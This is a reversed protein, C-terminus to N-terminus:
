LDNQNFDTVYSHLLHFYSVFLIAYPSNMALPCTLKREVM